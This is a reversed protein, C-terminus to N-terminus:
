TGEILITFLLTKTGFIKLESLRPCCHSFHIASILFNQLSLVHFYTVQQVMNICVFVCLALLLDTSM